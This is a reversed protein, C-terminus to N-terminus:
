SQQGGAAASAKTNLPICLTAIVGTPSNTTLRLTAAKGYLSQLRNRVNRLGTNNGPTASHEKLGLGTDAVVVEIMDDSAQATVTVSGGSEAPELGHTLANEVLPQVLMPPLEFDNLEEPCTVSYSLRAGMRIKAIQLYANLLVIEERLSTQMTRTRSLSNRLLTTLQQLTEEAATPNSRILGMATSLTNFLFHPEIQAQLTKLQAEALQRQTAQQQLEAKSLDARMEYIRSLNTFVITGLVGFFVALIGSSMDLEAVPLASYQHYVGLVASAIILGIVTALVNTVRVGFREALKQGALMHVSLISWGISLSAGLSLSFPESLGVVWLLVAIAVCFVTTWFLTPLLTESQRTWHTGDDIQDSNM